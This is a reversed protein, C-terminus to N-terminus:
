AREPDAVGKLAIQSPGSPFAVLLGIIIVAAATAFGIMKPAFNKSLFATLWSESRDGARHEGEAKKATHRLRDWDRKLQEDTLYGRVFQRIRGDFEADDAKLRGRAEDLKDQM